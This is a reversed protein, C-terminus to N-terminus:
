AAVFEGNTRGYRLDINLDATRAVWKKGALFLNEVLATAYLAKLLACRSRFFLSAFLFSVSKKQSNEKQM